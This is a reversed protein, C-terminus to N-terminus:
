RVPRAPVSLRWVSTVRGRPQDEGGSLWVTPGDTALAAALRPAPLSPAPSLTHDAADYIWARQNIAAAGARLEVGGVLLARHPDLAIGALGRPLPHPLPKRIWQDGARPYIWAETPPELRKRENSWVSGPFVHLEGRLALVVPNIIAPGDFRRIEGTRTDVRFCSAPLSSFDSDRPTGGIVWLHGGLLAAACNIRPEPLVALERARGDALDLVRIAASPGHSDLGGAFFWEPGRAAAGGHAFGGDIACAKEWAKANSPLKLVTDAVRKTEGAWFSGGAVWLTGGTTTAGHSAIGHPLEPLTEWGPALERASAHANALTLAAFLARV